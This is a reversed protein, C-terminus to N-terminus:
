EAGGEFLVCEVEDYSDDIVRMIGAVGGLQNMWGLFTCFEV